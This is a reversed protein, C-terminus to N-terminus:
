RAAPISTMKLAVDAHYFHDFHDQNTMGSYGLIHANGKGARYLLTRGGPQRDTAEERRLELKEILKMACITTTNGRHEELPPYLQTFIFTAEGACARQAFGVFPALSEDNRAYLSDLLVVNDVIAALDPHSLVDRVGTWGGSFSILTVRGIGEDTVDAQHDLAGGVEELIDLFDLSRAFGRKLTGANVVLLVANKHADYFVQEACWSAGLFWVAVDARGSTHFFDPVFLEGCGLTIRKGPVDRRAPPTIEGGPRTSQAFTPTALFLLLVVFSCSHVRILILLWNEKKNTDM